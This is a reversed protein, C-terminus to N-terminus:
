LSPGRTMGYDAIVTHAHKTGRLGRDEIPNLVPELFIQGCVTPLSFIVMFAIKSEALMVSFRGISMKVFIGAIHIVLIDCSTKKVPNQSVFLASSVTKVCEM